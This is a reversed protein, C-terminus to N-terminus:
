KELLQLTDWADSLKCGGSHLCIIVYDTEILEGLLM